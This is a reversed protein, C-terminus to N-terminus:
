CILNFRSISSIPFSDIKIRTKLKVLRQIFICLVVLGNTFLLLQSQLDRVNRSEPMPLSTNKSLTVGLVVWVIVRTVLLCNCHAFLPLLLNLSFCSLNFRRSGSAVALLSKNFDHENLKVILRAEIKHLSVGFRVLPAWILHQICMRRIVSTRDM